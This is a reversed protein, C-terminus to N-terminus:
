ALPRVHISVLPRQQDKSAKRVDIWGDSELMRLYRRINSESYPLSRYIQKLNIGDRHGANAIVTLMLDHSVFSGYDPMSRHLWARLKLLERAFENLSM